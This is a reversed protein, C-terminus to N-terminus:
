TVLSVSVIWEPISVSGSVASVSVPACVVWLCARSNVFVLLSSVLCSWIPGLCTTLCNYTGPGCLAVIQYVTYVYVVSGFFGFVVIHVSASLRWILVLRQSVAWLTYVLRLCTYNYLVSTWTRNQIIPLLAFTVSLSAGGRVREYPAVFSLWLM